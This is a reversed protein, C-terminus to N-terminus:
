LKQKLKKEEKMRFQKTEIAMKSIKLKM